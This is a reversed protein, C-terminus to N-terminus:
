ERESMKIKERYKNKIEILEERTYKYNRKEHAGFELEDVYIQGYREILGKRYNLLNGHLFTNCQVCSSHCNREDFMYGSYQGAAFYHSAHTNTKNLRCGCSVCPKRQDRKRIWSQFEKKAEKELESLTKLKGKIAKKQKNWEKKEKIQFYPKIEDPHDLNYQLACTVSCVKATTKYVPKGCIVCFKQTQKLM